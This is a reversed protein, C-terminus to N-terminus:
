TFDNRFDDKKSIFVFFEKDFLFMTRYHDIEVIIVCCVFIDCISIIDIIKMILWFTKDWLELYHLAEVAIFITMTGCVAFSFGSASFTRSFMICLLAVACCYLAYM